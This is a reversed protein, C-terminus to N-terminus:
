SVYTKKARESFSVEEGFFIYDRPTHYVSEIREVNTWKIATSDKEWSRLTPPTIGLLNAAEAQTYGLKVRLSRLTNKLNLPVDAM